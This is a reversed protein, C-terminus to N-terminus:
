SLGATPVSAISVLKEELNQSFTEFAYFIKDLTQSPKADAHGELERLTVDLYNLLVPFIMGAYNSIDPQLWM